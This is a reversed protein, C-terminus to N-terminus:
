SPRKPFSPARSRPTPVLIVLSGQGDRVRGAGVGVKTKSAAGAWPRTGPAGAGVDHKASTAAMTLPMASRPSGVHQLHQVATVQRVDQVCYAGRDSGSQGRASRGNPGPHEVPVLGPHVEGPPGDGYRALLRHAPRSNRSHAASPHGPPTPSITTMGNWSITGATRSPLGPRGELRTMWSARKVYWIVMRAMDGKASMPPCQSCVMPWPRGIGPRRRNGGRESGGTPSARVRERVRDSFNGATRVRPRGPPSGGTRSPVRRSSISGATASWCM